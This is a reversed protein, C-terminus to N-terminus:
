GSLRAYIVLLVPIAMAAWMCFFMAMRGLANWKEILDDDEDTVPAAQDFM